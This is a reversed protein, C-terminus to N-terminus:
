RRLKKKSYPLIFKACNELVHYCIYNFTILKPHYIGYFYQCLAAIDSVFYRSFLRLYGHILFITANNPSMAQIRQYIQSFKRKKSKNIIYKLIKHNYPIYPIPQIYRNYRQIQKSKNKYKVTLWEEMDGMTINQIIAAM